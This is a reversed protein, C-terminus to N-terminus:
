PKEKKFGNEMAFRMLDLANRAGIKKSLNKKRSEIASISRHMRVAIEKNGLGLTIWGLLEVDDEKLLDLIKEKNTKEKLNSSPMFDRIAIQAVENSFFEEGDRIKTLAEVVFQAGKNKLIYGKAGNAIMERINKLDDYMTLVLVKIQPYEDTIYKLVENGDVKPMSIDLILIDIQQTKCANIAEDGNLASGVFEFQDSQLEIASKIADIVIQHDDAIYIKTKDSMM